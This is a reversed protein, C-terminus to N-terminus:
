LEILEKNPEFMVSDGYVYNNICEELTVRGDPEPFMGGFLGGETPSTPKPDSQTTSLLCAKGAQNKFEYLPVGKESARAVALAEDRMNYAQRRLESAQDTAVFWAGFAIIALASGSLGLRVPRIAGM